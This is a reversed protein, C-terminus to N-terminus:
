QSKTPTSGLPNQSEPKPNPVPSSLVLSSTVKVQILYIALSLTGFFLYGNWTVRMVVYKLSLCLFLVFIIKGYEYKENYTLTLHKSWSNKLITRLKGDTLSFTGFICKRPFNTQVKEWFLQNSRLSPLM